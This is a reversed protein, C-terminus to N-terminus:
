RKTVRSFMGIWIQVSVVLNLRKTTGELLEM